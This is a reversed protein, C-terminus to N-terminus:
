KSKISRIYTAIRGYNGIHAQTQFANGNMFMKITGQSCLPTLKSLQRITSPDVKIENRFGQPVIELVPAPGDGYIINADDIDGNYISDIDAGWTKANNLSGFRHVKNNIGNVNASFFIATNTGSINVHRPKISCIGDCVKKFRACPVIRIPEGFDGLDAVSYITYPLQKPRFTDVGAEDDAESSQQIIRLHIDPKNPIKYIRLRDRKGINKTIPCVDTYGCGVIFEDCNSNYEYECLENADIYGMNLITNDANTQQFQIGDKSFVFNGGFRPNGTDKLYDLLCKFSYGDHIVANFSTMPDEEMGTNLSPTTADLRIENALTGNAIGINLSSNPAYSQTENVLSENDTTYTNPEMNIFPSGDKSIKYFKRHNIQLLGNLM